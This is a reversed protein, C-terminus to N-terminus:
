IAAHPINNKDETMKKNRRVVEDTTLSVGCVLCKRIRTVITARKNTDVVRTNAGCYPCHM